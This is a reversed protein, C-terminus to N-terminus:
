FESGSNNRQKWNIGLRKLYDWGRQPWVHQRGTREAIWQAVKPGSWPGGDPAPGLLAQKLEQQQSKTLLSRAVPPQRDRSRNRVSPPGEHNYRRIIEKAYDYNLGVVEAAQKITWGSGVLHLLHWRRSETTDRAQRYRNKLDDVSLHPEIHAKPPM